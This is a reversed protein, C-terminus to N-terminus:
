KELFRDFLQGIRMSNTVQARVESEREKPIEGIRQMAQDVEKDKVEIKERTIIENIGFRIKIRKEAEKKLDKRLQDESKKIHQLYSDFQLGKHAMDEKMEQLMYEVEESVLVDSIDLKALDLVKELFEQEQRKRDESQKYGRLDKEVDKKFDPISKRSGTIKEIFEENLEPYTPKEVKLVKVKFNVKKEQFSKKHYDKPFTITFEKEDGKKLGMLNEEFGPVMMKEGIIVPHNKSKTGELSAGGEDFGEFDLEVKYGKKIADDTEDWSVFQKKVNDITEDVDKETIKFDKAKIKIKEYGDVKVEPYVPAIAKFKLPDISTIEVKPRVIIELKEKKIVETLVRPIALDMAHNMILEKGVHKELVDYPVKGSRFGPINVDKSIQEAAANVDKKFEEPKLEITIEVEAKPLRKVNVDM